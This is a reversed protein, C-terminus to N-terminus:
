SEIPLFIRHLFIKFRLNPQFLFVLSYFYQRRQKSGSWWGRKKKKKPPPLSPQGVVSPARALADAARGAARGGRGAARRVQAVLGTIEHLSRLNITALDRGDLLVRGATPDYFRMLLHVMTSKGGGSKGVFALTSGGLITLDM